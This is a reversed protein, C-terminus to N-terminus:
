CCPPALNYVHKDAGAPTIDEKILLKGIDAFTQFLGYPGTRNPGLRDQIRGAVKRELWIGFIVWILGFSSCAVVGLLAAAFIALDRNWGQSTLFEIM